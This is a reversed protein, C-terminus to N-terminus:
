AVLPLVQLHMTPHLELPPLELVAKLEVEKLEVETSTPHAVVADVDCPRWRSRQVGVASPIPVSVKCPNPAWVVVHLDSVPVRRKIISRIVFDPVPHAVTPCIKRHPVTEGIQIVDYCVLRHLRAIDRAADM